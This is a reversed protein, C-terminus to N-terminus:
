TKQRKQKLMKFFSKARSERKEKEAQRMIFWQQVISLTNSWAWYIVLGAPFSALLFTFVIPMIMFMKAQIPDAPQPNLKQQLFMTIGMLLPWVGLHLFEPPTFPLVGFLNFLNTPDPASLDRIWGFFPAHRMELTVFLVKYLAFFVPIQILIPLCGSAPNVKERKYLNMMEQNLKMRDDKYLERLKLLEPQLARMQGMSRYSKNALPYFALKVLITLILIAIGFNGVHEYLWDLVLFFPKTLFYFWGFDIALDFRDLNYTESYSDLLKVEKAGAFVHFTYATTGGANLTQPAGRYDLQYREHNTTRLHNMRAEFTQDAGPFLAALWYKDSFGLWGKGSSSFSLTGKDQLEDYDVEQLQKNFMGIPGEHLIFFGSTKPTDTRQLLAYPYLTITENLQSTVKDNITFLYNEDVKIEREFYLGEGNDWGLLIPTKPTLTKNESLLRWTTTEKPMTVATNNQTQALWSMEAFYPQKTGQPSLLQIFSSTPELTERHKLLQIDDIRSGVLSLSGSIAPTEILVRHPNAIIDERTQITAEEQQPIVPGTQPAPITNDVNQTAQETQQQAIHPAEFFYQWGLLIALSFAVALILNKQEM